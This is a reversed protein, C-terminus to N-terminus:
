GVSVREYRRQPIRSSMHRFVVVEALRNPSEPPQRHCFRHTLPATTVARKDTAVPVTGPSAPLPTEREEERPTQGPGTGQHPERYRGVMGPSSSGWQDSWAVPRLCRGRGRRPPRGRWPGWSTSCKRTCATFPSRTPLSVARPVSPREVEVETSTSIVRGTLNGSPLIGENM